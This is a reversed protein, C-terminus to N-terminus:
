VHRSTVHRSSVGGAAVRGGGGSQVLLLGASFMCERWDPEAAVCAASLSPKTRMKDALDYFRTRMVDGAGTVTPM